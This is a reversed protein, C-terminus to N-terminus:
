MVLGLKWARIYSSLIQTHELFTVVLAIGGGWTVRKRSAQDSVRLCGPKPKNSTASTTGSTTKEVKSADVRTGRQSCPGWQWSVRGVVQHNRIWLPPPVKSHRATTEGLQTQSRPSLLNQCEKRNEKFSSLARKLTGRAAQISSPLYSWLSKTCCVWGAM